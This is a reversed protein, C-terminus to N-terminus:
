GEGPRTEAVGRGANKAPWYQYEAGCRSCAPSHRKQNCGLPDVELIREIGQFTAQTPGVLTDAEAMEV